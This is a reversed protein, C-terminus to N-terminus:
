AHLGARATWLTGVIEALADLTIADNDIVVDAIARRRTRSTQSAIVARAADSSWGSRAVIRRVQTEEACDIVWVEDVRARWTASEALLPVDFVVIPGEAAAAQRDTEAGILPHLIAELRRRVAADAFVASRMRARDMGGAADIFEAGFDNRIADIAAGGPEALSRAIRDTDVVIAGLGALLAAVTSKGSGIGGTLGVRWCGPM